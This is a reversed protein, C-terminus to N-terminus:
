SPMLECYVHWSVAMQRVTALWRTQLPTAKKEEREELQFVVGLETQLQQATYCGAAGHSLAPRYVLTIVNMSGADLELRSSLCCSAVPFATLFRHQPQTTVLQHLYTHLSTTHLFAALFWGPPPKRLPAFWLVRCSTAEDQSLRKFVLFLFRIHAGVM